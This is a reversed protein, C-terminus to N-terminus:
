QREHVTGGAPISSVIVVKTKRRRLFFFFFSAGCCGRWRSDFERDIVNTKRRRLFFFFFFFGACSLLGCVVYCAIIVRERVRLLLHRYTSQALVVLSTVRGGGDRGIWVEGIRGM